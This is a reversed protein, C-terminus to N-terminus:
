ININIILNKFFYVYLFEELITISNHKQKYIFEDPVQNLHLM